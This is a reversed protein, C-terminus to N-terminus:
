DAAWISLLCVGVYPIGVLLWVPDLYAQAVFLVTAAMVISSLVLCMVVLFKVFYMDFGKLIVLTWCQVTESDSGVPLLPCFCHLRHM